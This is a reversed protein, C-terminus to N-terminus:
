MPTHHCARARHLLSLNGIPCCPWHAQSMQHRGPLPPGPIYKCQPLLAGSTAELLWSLQQWILVPGAPLLCELAQNGMCAEPLATRHSQQRNLLVLGAPLPLKPTWREWLSRSPCDQPAAVPEPSCLRSAALTGLGLETRHPQQWPFQAQQSIGETVWPAIPLWLVQKCLPM